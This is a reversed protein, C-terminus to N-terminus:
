HIGEQTPVTVTSLGLLRVIDEHKQRPLAKTLGDAPMDATSVCDVRLKGEEVEHRLWHQHIDVHRQLTVLKPTKKALLRITQANACWITLDDDLCLFISEFLRRWNYMEKATDSLALLEAETSSTTVTRQKTSKWDVPGGFLLCVYSATSRRTVPDDAYAADSACLFLTTISSASYLIARYRTYYLYAIARNVAELHVPGPNQLFESLKNAARAADPRSRTTAYLLSGVRRQYVYIEQKSATGDYPRLEDTAM